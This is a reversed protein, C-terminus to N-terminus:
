ETPTGRSQRSRQSDSQADASVPTYRARFVADNVPWIEGTPNMVLWDGPDADATGELTQVTIPSKIQVARVVAVKQYRDETVREYTSAFVDAAVSWARGREDEVIWDGPEAQMRSGRETVWVRSTDVRTATVEGQALFMEGRGVLEQTESADLLRHTDAM